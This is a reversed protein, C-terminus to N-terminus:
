WFRLNLILIYYLIFTLFFLNLQEYSINFLQKQIKIKKIFSFFIFLKNLFTIFYLFLIFFMLMKKLKGDYILKTLDFFIYIFFFLSILNNLFIKINEQINQINYKIHIVTLNDNSKNEMFDFSTLILFFMYLLSIFFYKFKFDSMVLFIYLIFFNNFFDYILFKKYKEETLLLFTNKLFFIILILFVPQWLFFSKYETQIKYFVIFYLIGNLLFILYNNKINTLIEPNFFIFMFTLIGTLCFKNINDAVDLNFCLMSLFITFLVFFIYKIKNENDKLENFIFILNAIILGSFIIFLKEFFIMAIATLLFIYKIFFDYYKKQKEILILNLILLMFFVSNKKISFGAILDEKEIYFFIFIFIFFISYLIFDFIWLFKNKFNEIIFILLIIIGVFLFYVPSVLLFKDLFGYQFFM